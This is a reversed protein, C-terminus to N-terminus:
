EKELVTIQPIPIGNEEATEIWVVENSELEQLAEEQTDGVGMCNKLDVSEAVWAEDGDLRFRNMTYPFIAM